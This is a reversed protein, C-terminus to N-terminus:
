VRQALKRIVGVGGLFLCVLLTVTLMMMLASAAGLPMNNVKGFLTQILSGLMIGDTGGVLAPTVYDGVTPIFVLLAAAVLGPLSLPFTIRWFRRWPSDGLDAAAELLSRDIKEMSVYIPLIAFAVWAHALTVVVSFQNYLLFELPEELLGLQKLGSNIVGDYGLILKWAFVRLLYSTWFPVTILILWMMKNRKVRFALFYAMPYSLLLIVITCSFSMWLSRALLTLYIPKETYNFFTLYNKFTFSTDLKFGSQTWFSLLILAVLPLALMSLIVLLTPSLLGYGRLNDSRRLRRLWGNATSVPRVGEIATAM